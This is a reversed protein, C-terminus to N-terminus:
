IQENAVKTALFSSIVEKVRERNESIPCILNAEKGNENLVKSVEELSSFRELFPLALKQFYDIIDNIVLPIDQKSAISWRQQGIGLINGLETGLTATSKKQAQSLYTKEENILDEIQHHRIAVDAIVDFDNSHNIFAIHFIQRCQEAEKYFHQQTKRIRFGFSKLKEDLRQLLLEQLEKM